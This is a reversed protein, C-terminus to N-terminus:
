FREIQLQIDGYGVTIHGPIQREVVLEVAPEIGMRIRRDKRIQRITEPQAKARRKPHDASAKACLAKWVAM